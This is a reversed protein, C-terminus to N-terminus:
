RLIGLVSKFMEDATRMVRASADYAHQYRVMNATEEDISVGSVREKLSQLQTLVGENQEADLRAKGSELGIKGIIQLYSEEITTSSDDLVKEHQIKSIALAVRNDGPANPILGTSINSLDNKVDDSLDILASAGKIEDPIKFFDIGSTPGKADFSAIGRGQDVPIPRAVAGRRHVANVLNALNYAITDIKGRIEKIDNNRVNLISSLTGLEFKNSVPASPRRQFYIELKGNDKNDETLGAGTALHQVEGAAVLTGVGKATVVFQNKDDTYTHLTFNKSLNKLALDRQDRLDGTESGGAELETIKRNLLAVSDLVQNIDEVQSKMKNEISNTLQDLTQSIRNFDKVILIASDRVVSRITENEPQASLERFSNFFKTIVKNLGDNDVENFLDEVQGLQLARENFFEYKSLSQNLRKEIFPDHIRNINDIKSGTGVNLGSKIIPANATQRVRQRSYGETNANSLNHGTTELAKKSSFLGSAGINLLDSM